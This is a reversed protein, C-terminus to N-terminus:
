RLTRLPDEAGQGGCFVLLGEPFFYDPNDKYFKKRFKFTDILNKPNKSGELMDLFFDM